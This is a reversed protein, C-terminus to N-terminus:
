PRGMTTAVDIKRVKAELHHPQGPHYHGAVKRADGWWARIGDAIRDRMATAGKDFWERQEDENM